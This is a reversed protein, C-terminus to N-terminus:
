ADGYIHNTIWRFFVMNRELDIATVIVRADGATKARDVTWVGSYATIGFNSGVDAAVPTVRTSSGNTIKAQFITTDNARAYAIKQERGTIPVPSNAADYGPATGAAQLAVGLILAPDAGSLAAEGTDYILVSGIVIAEGTKYLGYTVQPVLGSGVRAPTM